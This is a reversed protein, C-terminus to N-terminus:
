LIEDKKLQKVYINDRRRMAVNKLFFLNKENTTKLITVRIYGWYSNMTNQQYFEGKNHEKDACKKECVRASIHQMEKTLLMNLYVWGMGTLELIFIWINPHQHNSDNRKCSQIKLLIYDPPPKKDLAPSGCQFKFDPGLVYKWEQERMYTYKQYELYAVNGMNVLCVRFEKTQTVSRLKRQKQLIKQGDRGRSIRNM